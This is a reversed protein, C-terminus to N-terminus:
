VPIGLSVLLRNMFGMIEKMVVYFRYTALSDELGPIASNDECAYEAVSIFEHAYIEPNNEYLTFVSAGRVFNEGYSHWTCGPTQVLDVGDVNVVFANSHDHGVALALVDGREVFADWQGFNYMSPCSPEFAYGEIGDLNVLYGTSTGDEFNKTIAGLQVPVNFFAAQCPEQPIIHQFALSYVKKGCDAELQASANKYWEVQDARVCSYGREGDSNTMYDGSDFMWINFMIEDSGDSAYIPLNHTACGSLEPYPDSAYCGPFTQYKALLEEKTRGGSAEEDHNGFCMTFPIGRTVLPELVQDYTQLDESVVNDGTFVVLDPKVRDLSENIFALMAERVPYSDQMDAFQLIVFKSNDNFRLVENQASAVTFPIAGATLVCVLVLSMIVRLSKKM